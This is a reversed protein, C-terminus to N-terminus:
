TTPRTAIWGEIDSRRWAVAREGLKVPRPFQGRGIMKYVTTKGVGIKALVDTLRYFEPQPADM